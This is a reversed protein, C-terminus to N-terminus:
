ALARPKRSILNIAAIRLVRDRVLSVTEGYGCQERIYLGRGKEAGPQDAVTSQTQRSIRRAKAKIAEARRSM